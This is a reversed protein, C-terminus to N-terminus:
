GRKGDLSSKSRTRQLQIQPTRRALLDLSIEIVERAEDPTTTGITVMDQERITNWVFALGAVPLLRGAALPKITMVPKQANNIIKMVWDTEVQMLFGTANYLQIYTEVDAGTEDAYIVTEPMHTSLGPIMEYQRILQTYKEIDRIKRYLRDMLADTVMQHPMCIAAGAAKCQAIVAEPENVPDGGPLLDFWPTLILKIEQSTRQQVEQVAETLLPHLPGMVTDVGATLFVELISVIKDRTQTDRILKDKAASYHSYGLFWNTGVILRSLSLNGVITRPFSM